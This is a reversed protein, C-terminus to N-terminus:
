WRKGLESRTAIAAFNGCVVAAGFEYSAHNYEKRSYGDHNLINTRSLHVKHCKKYLAASVVGYNARYYRMKGLTVNVGYTFLNVNIHKAMDRNLYTHNLASNKVYAYADEFTKDSNFFKETDNVFKANDM